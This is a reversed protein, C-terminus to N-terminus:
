NSQTDGDRLIKTQKSRHAKNTKIYLRPARKKPDKPLARRQKSGGNRKINRKRVKTGRVGNNRARRNGRKKTSTRRMTRPRQNYGDYCDRNPARHQKRRGETGSSMRRGLYIYCAALCSSRTITDRSSFVEFKQKGAVEENAEGILGGM